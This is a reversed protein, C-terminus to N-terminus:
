LNAFFMPKLWQKLSKLNNWCVFDRYESLRSAGKTHVTKHSLCGEHKDQWVRSNRDVQHCLWGERSPLNLCLSLHSVDDTNHSSGCVDHSWACSRRRTHTQELTCPHPGLGM